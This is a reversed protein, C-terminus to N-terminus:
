LNKTLNYIISYSIATVTPFAILTMVAGVPAGSYIVYFIIASYPILTAIGVMILKKRTWKVNKKLTKTLLKEDKVTKFRSM